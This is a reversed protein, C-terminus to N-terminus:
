LLQKGRAAWAAERRRRRGFRRVLLICAIVAAAGFAAFMYTRAGESVVRGAAPDNPDYSVTVADGVDPVASSAPGTVQVAEAQGDPTFAVKPRYRDEQATRDIREVGVIRGAAQKQGELPRTDIDDALAIVGFVLSVLLAISLWLNTNSGSGTM